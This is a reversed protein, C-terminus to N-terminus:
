RASAASPRTSSTASAACRCSSRRPAAALRRRRRLRDRRAGQPPQDAPARDPLQHAHRRALAPQRLAHRRPDGARRDGGPGAEQHRRVHVHRGQRRHGQHLRLSRDIYALSQQLDIIYIGNRETMIFRKMKPNWRRTQHGFHVGSELLQRMTVVAMATTRRQRSGATARASPAARGTDAGTTETTAPRRTGAARVGARSGSGSAATRSRPITAWPHAPGAPTRARRPRRAHSTLGPRTAGALTTSAPRERRISRARRRRGPRGCARGRRDDVPAGRRAPPAAGAPLSRAHAGSSEGAAGATRSAADQQHRGADDRRAPGAAAGSGTGTPTHGSRGRGAPPAGAEVRGVVGHPAPWRPTSRGAARALRHAGRQAPRDGEGPQEGAAADDDDVVARGARGVLRDGGVTARRRRPRRAAATIPM